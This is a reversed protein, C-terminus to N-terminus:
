ATESDALAPPAAASAPALWLVAATAVLLPLSLAFYYAGRDWGAQILIGAVNPGVVAGLRGVGLAWGIGTNRMAVPYLDPIGAYLSIMAGAVFFGVLFTAGLMPGLSTNMYGFATLVGISILMAVSGLRFVSRSSALWGLVLGGSVAGVSLIMGGSISADRSLGADALVKPTWNAVFYWTSMVAVFALWIAITRGRYAPGLVAFMAPRRADGEPAAPLETLAERGMRKLVDNARPLADAPQKGLLFALSEPLFGWVLPMMLLSMVGGVVFISRWGFQSLLLVSVFGAVIAGVPYGAQLVAVAFKQRRANSYEAVMTTLSSLMGGVGLGTFFRTALLIKIGPALASGFMGVTIIALCIFILVRRGLRDAIPSLLLAGFVMGALGASFVVGLMKPQVSWERAIEPAAFAIALVDFGDLFNIVLCIAVAIVQFRSMPEARIQDLVQM